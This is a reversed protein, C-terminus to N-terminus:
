RAAKSVRLWKVIGAAATGSGPKQGLTPTVAASLRYKMVPNPFDDKGIPIATAGTM